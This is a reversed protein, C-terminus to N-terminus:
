TAGHVFLGATTPPAGLCMGTIILGAEDVERADLTASVFAKLGTGAM